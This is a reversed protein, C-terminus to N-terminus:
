GAARLNKATLRVSHWRLNKGRAKEFWKNCTRSYYEERVAKHRKNLKKTQDESIHDPLTDEVYKPFDEDQALM